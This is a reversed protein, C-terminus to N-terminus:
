SSRIALFTVGVVVSVAMIWVGQQSHKRPLCFGIVFGVLPFLFAFVWGITVWPSKDAIAMSAPQGPAQESM